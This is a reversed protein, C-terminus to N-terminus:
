FLGLMWGFYLIGLGILICRINGAGGFVFFAGALLFIVRWYQVAASADDMWNPKSVSGDDNYFPSNKYAREKALAKELKKEIKEEPTLTFYNYVGWSGKWLGICVLLFLVVMVVLAIVAGFAEKDTVEQAAM